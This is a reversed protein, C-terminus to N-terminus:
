GAHSHTPKYRSVAGQDLAHRDDSEAMVVGLSLGGVNRISIATDWYHIGGLPVTKIKTAAVEERWMASFSSRWFVRFTV